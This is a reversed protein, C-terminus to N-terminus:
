RKKTIRPILGTLMETRYSCEVHSILFALSLAYSYDTINKELARCGSKLVNLSSDLDNAIIIQTTIWSILLCVLASRFM